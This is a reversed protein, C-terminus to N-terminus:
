VYVLGEPLDEPPEEGRAAWGPVTAMHRGVWTLVFDDTGPLYVVRTGGDEPSAASLVECETRLEAPMAALAVEAVRGLRVAVEDSVAM